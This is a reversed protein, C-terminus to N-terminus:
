SLVTIVSKIDHLSRIDIIPIDYAKAKELKPASPKEGIILKKCTKTVKDSLVFGAEALKEKLMNRPMGVWTGSIAIPIGELAPTRALTFDYHSLFKSIENRNRIVHTGIGLGDLGFLGCLFEPDSLITMLDNLDHFKLGDNLGNKASFNSIDISRVIGLGPIGLACLWRHIDFRNVTNIQELIKIASSEPVGSLTLDSETLNFIDSPSSFFGNDLLSIIAKEGLGKIDLGDKRDVLRTLQRILQGSCELNNCYATGDTDNLTIVHNCFPCHEPYRLKEGSGLSVLGIIKPIIENAKTLQITSGINLGKDFYSQAYDLKARSLTTGEYNVPKYILTGVLQGTLTLSWDIDTVESQLVITPFKYCTSYAWYQGNNPKDWDSLLDSKVVLGDIPYGLNPKNPLNLMNILNEGSVVEPLTFGIETLHSRLESYNKFEERVNKSTGYVSFQIPLGNDKDTSNHRKMLGSVTSRPDNNKPDLSHLNLYYNYDSFLCYAEGTYETREKDEDLEIHDPIGVLLHRRHSLDAGTIGDGRSHIRALDGHVYILRIAMGDLKVEHIGNSDIKNRVWDLYDEKNKRKSISLMPEIIEVPDMKENPTIFGIGYTSTFEPTINKLRIYEHSLEEYADDSIAPKDLEFYMYDHYKLQGELELLRKINDSM